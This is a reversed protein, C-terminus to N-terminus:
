INYKKEIDRIKNVRVAHRGGQFEANLFADVIDLALGPGTVREGMTLVNADNHMRSMRACFTDSCVAARIGPVKNAVISVGIGTGCVLIGIDFEGRAVAEAVPLAYDPYDVSECTKCGFDKYEIHLGDLHQKVVGKLHFGGHDSGIAIKM